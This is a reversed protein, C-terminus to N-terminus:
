YQVYRFPIPPLTPYTIPWIDKKAWRDLDSEFQGQVQSMQKKKVNKRNKWYM